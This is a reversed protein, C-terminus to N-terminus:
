RIPYGRANFEVDPDPMSDGGRALHQEYSTLLYGVRIRHADRGVNLYAERLTKRFTQDDWRPSDSGTFADKLENRTGITPREGVVETWIRVGPPDDERGPGDGRAHASEYAEAPNNNDRYQDSRIAGERDSTIAGRDSSTEGRDSSAAETATQRRESQQQDGRDSSIVGGRDSTAPPDTPSLYRKGDDHRETVYGAEVLQRKWRRVSSKSAGIQDAFFQNTAFCQGEDCYMEWIEYFLLRALPSLDTDRRVKRCQDSMM